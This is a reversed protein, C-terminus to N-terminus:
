SLFLYFCSNMGPGRTGCDFRTADILRCTDARPQRRRAGSVPGQASRARGQRRDQGELAPFWGRAPIAQTM